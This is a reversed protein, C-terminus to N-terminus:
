EEKELENLKNNLWKNVRDFVETYDRKVQKVDKM